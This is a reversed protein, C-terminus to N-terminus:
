GRSLKYNVFEYAARAESKLAGVGIKEFALKAETFKGAALYIAALDEALVPDKEINGAKLVAEQALNYEGNQLYCAALIRQAEYLIKGSPKLIMAAQASAYASEIERNKLALAAHEIHGNFWYPFKKLMDILFDGYAKWLKEAEPLSSIEALVLLNNKPAALKNLTRFIWARLNLFINILFHQVNKNIILRFKKLLM